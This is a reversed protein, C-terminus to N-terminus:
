TLRVDVRLIGDQLILDLKYIVMKYLASRKHIEKESLLM